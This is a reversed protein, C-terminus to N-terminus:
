RLIEAIRVRYLILHCILVSIIDEIFLMGLLVLEFLPPSAMLYVDTVYTYPAQIIFALIVSTLQPAIPRKTAKKLQFYIFGTFFGLIANGPLIYLNVGSPITLAMVIAGVFGVSGGALSGLSLGALIIPLQIFHIPVTGVPVAVPVALFGLVNALASMIAIFAIM